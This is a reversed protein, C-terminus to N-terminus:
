LRPLYLRAMERVAQKFDVEHWRMYFDVVTQGKCGAFCHWTNTEPYVAFSMKHEDHFPCLARNGKNVDVHERVLDEIKVRAKIREAPTGKIVDGPKYQLIQRPPPTDPVQTLVEAIFEAPVKPPQALIALQERVTPALDDGTITKFAFRRQAGRHIGLPLRIFSGPGTRLEDQRPYIELDGLGYQALFYRAWRRVDKGPLPDFFFWVHGGRHSNERLAPIGRQELDAALQLLGTWEAPDDADLALYKARNHTDLAYAGLTIEGLLHREILEITLMRQIASYSGDHKQVPYRDWRPIFTQAFNVLIERNIEVAPREVRRSM